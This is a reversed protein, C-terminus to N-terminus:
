QEHVFGKGPHTTDVRIEMPKSVGAKGGWMSNQLNGTIGDPIEDIRAALEEILDPRAAQEEKTIGKVQLWFPSISFRDFYM